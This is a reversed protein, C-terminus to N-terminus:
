VQVVILSCSGITLGARKGPRRCSEGQEGLKRMFPGVYLNPPAESAGSVSKPIRERSFIRGHSSPFPKLIEREEATLDLLRDEVM